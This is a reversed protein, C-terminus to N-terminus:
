KADRNPNTSQFKWSFKYPVGLFLTGLSRKATAVANGFKTVDNDLSKSYQWVNVYAKDLESQVLFYAFWLYFWAYLSYLCTSALM